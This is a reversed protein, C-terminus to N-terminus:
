AVERCWEPVAIKGTGIISYFGNIGKDSVKKNHCNSAWLRVSRAIEQESNGVKRQQEIYKGLDFVKM